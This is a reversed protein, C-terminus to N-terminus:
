DIVVLDCRCYDGGQCVAAGPFGIAQWEAFTKIEGGYPGCGDCTSEDDETICIMTQNVNGDIADWSSWQQSARRALGIMGRRSEDTTLRTLEARFEASGPRLQTMKAIYEMSQAQMVNWPTTVGYHELLEGLQANTLKSIDALSPLRLQDPPGDLTLTPSVYRNGELTAAPVPFDGLLAQKAESIEPM